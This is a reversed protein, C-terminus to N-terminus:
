CYECKELEQDVGETTEEVPEDKIRLYQWDKRSLYPKLM